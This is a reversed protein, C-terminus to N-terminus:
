GSYEKWESRLISMQLVNIYKGNQYYGDRHIGERVFGVKEYCRIARPNTEYVRLFIRNLNYSYFGLEVCLTIAKSGYGQNWFQKEGIVIGLEASRNRCDINFFSCNGITIWDQNKLVEIVLPREENPRQLIEDLWKEEEMLSIPLHVMLGERVEPDNFWKVFLTTDDREVKRLRIDGKIIM